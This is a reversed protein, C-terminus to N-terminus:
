GDAGKEQEGEVPAGFRDLLSSVRGELSPEPDIFSVGVAYTPEHSSLYVRRVKVEHEFIVDHIPAGDRGIGVPKPGFVRVSGECMRPLFHKFSLGM